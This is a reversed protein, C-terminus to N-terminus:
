YIPDQSEYLLYELSLMKMTLPHKGRLLLFFWRDTAPKKIGKM